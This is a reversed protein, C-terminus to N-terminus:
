YSSKVKFNERERWPQVTRIMHLMIINLTRNHERLKMGFGGEDGGACGSSDELFGDFRLNFVDM